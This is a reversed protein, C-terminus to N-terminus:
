FSLGAHTWDWGAQPSTNAKLAM